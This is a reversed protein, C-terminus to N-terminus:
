EGVTANILTPQIWIIKSDQLKEGCPQNRWHGRRWHTIPSSHEIHSHGKTTKTKVENDLSLFRYSLLKEQKRKEKKSLRSTTKPLEFQRGENHNQCQFFLIIHSVLSDLDITPLGNYNPPKSHKVIAGNSDINFYYNYLFGAANFSYSITRYEDEKIAQLKDGKHGVYLDGVFDSFQRNAHKADETNLDNIIVWNIDFEIGSPRKFKLLGRPLFVLCVDFVKKIDKLNSPIDTKVFLSVLEKDLAYVPFDPNNYLRYNFFTDGIDEKDMYSRKVIIQTNVMNTQAKLFYRFNEYEIYDYFKRHRLRSFVDTKIDKNQESMYLKFVKDVIIKYQIERTEDVLADILDAIM